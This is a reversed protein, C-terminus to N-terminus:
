RGAAPAASQAGAITQTALQKSLPLSQELELALNLCNDVAQVQQVLGAIDGAGLCSSRHPQHGAASLSASFTQKLRSSLFHLTILLQCNSRRHM